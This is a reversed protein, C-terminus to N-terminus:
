RRKEQDNEETRKDFHKLASKGSCIVGNIDIGSPENKRYRNNETHADMNDEQCKSRALETAEMIYEQATTDSCQKIGFPGVGLM